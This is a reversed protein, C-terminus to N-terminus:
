PSYQEMISTVNATNFNSTYSTYKEFGKYLRLDQIHVDDPTLRQFNPIAFNYGTSTLDM